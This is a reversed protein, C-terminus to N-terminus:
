EAASAFVDSRSSHAEQARTIIGISCTKAKVIFRPWIRPGVFRRWRLRQWKVKVTRGASYFTMPCILGRRKLDQGMPQRTADRTGEVFVISGERAFASGASIPGDLVVFDFSETIAPGKDPLLEIRSRESAPINQEFQQRCWEKHETCVIRTERPLRALLVSTITGIGSGFEVVSRIPFQRTIAAIHALSLTSAIHESGVQAAFRSHVQRALAWDERTVLLSLM